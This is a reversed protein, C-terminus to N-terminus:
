KENKLGTLAFVMVASSQCGSFLPGRATNSTPAYTRRRRRAVVVSDRLIAVGAPDSFATLLPCRRFKRAIQTANRQLYSLSMVQNIKDHVCEWLLLSSHVVWLWVIHLHWFSSFSERLFLSTTFKSRTIDDHM